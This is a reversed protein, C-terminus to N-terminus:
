PVSIGNERYNSEIMALWRPMDCSRPNSDWRWVSHAPRSQAPNLHHRLVKPTFLIEVTDNRLLHCNPCAHHGNFCIRFFYVAVIVSHSSLGVFPFSRRYSGLLKMMPAAERLKAKMARRCMLAIPSILDTDRALGFDIVRHIITALRRVFNYSAPEIGAVEM